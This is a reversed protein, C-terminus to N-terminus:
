ANEIMGEEELIRIVARGMACSVPNGGYTNFHVKNKIVQGIEARTAVAALPAGGGIGKAFVVMDPIVDHKPFGWM